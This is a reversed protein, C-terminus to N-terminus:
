LHYLYNWSKIDFKIKLAIVTDIHLQIDEICKIHETTPKVHVKSLEQASYANSVLVGSCRQVNIQGAADLKVTQKKRRGYQNVFTEVIPEPLAPVVNQCNPFINIKEGWLKSAVQELPVGSAELDKTSILFPKCINPNIPPVFTPDVLLRDKFQKEQTTYTLFEHINQVQLDDGCILIIKGENQSQHTFFRTVDRLHKACIVVPKKMNTASNFMADARLLEPFNFCVEQNFNHAGAFMGIASLASSPKWPLPQNIGSECFMYDFRLVNNVKWKSIGVPNKTKTFCHDLDRVTTPLEPPVSRLNSCFSFDMKTLPSSTPFATIATLNPQKTINIESLNGHFQVKMTDSAFKIGKAIGDRYVPILKCFVSLFNQLPM